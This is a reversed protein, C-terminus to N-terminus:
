QVLEASGDPFVRYSKGDKGVKVTGGSADHQPQPSATPTFQPQNVWTELEGPNGGANNLFESRQVPSMNALSSRAYAASNREIIRMARELEAATANRPNAAIKGLIIRDEAETIAKGGKSSLYTGALNGVEQRFAQAKNSDDGLIGLGWNPIKGQLPGVGPMEEMGGKTGDVMSRIRRVDAMIGPTENPWNKSLAAMNKGSAGGGGGAGRPLPDAKMKAFEDWDNATMLKREEPPIRKWDDTYRARVVQERARAARTGPTNMEQVRQDSGAKRGEDSRQFGQDERKFGQDERQFGQDEDMRGQERRQLVNKVGQQGANRIASGVDSSQGHRGSILDAGEHMGQAYRAQRDADSAANQANRLEDDGSPRPAGQSAGTVMQAVQSMPSSTPGEPAMGPGEATHDIGDNPNPGAKAAVVPANPVRRLITPEMPTVEVTPKRPYDVGPGHTAGKPLRMDAFKTLLDRAEDSAPSKGPRRPAVGPPGTVDDGPKYKPMQGPPGTLDDGPRYRPAQGIPGTEDDGPQYGGMLMKELEDIDFAM